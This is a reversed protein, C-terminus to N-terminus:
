AGLHDADVGGGAVDGGGLQVGVLPMQRDIIAAGRHLLHVDALAEVDHQRHFHDLMDAIDAHEKGAAGRHQLGAAQHHDRRYVAVPYAKREGDDAGFIHQAPQRAAGMLPVFEDGGVFEFMMEGVVLEGDGLLGAHDVGGEGVAPAEGAVHVHIVHHHRLPHSYHSSFVITTGAFAPVWLWRGVYNFVIETGLM